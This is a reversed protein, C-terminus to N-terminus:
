LSVDVKKKGKKREKEEREVKERERERERWDDRLLVLEVEEEDEAGAGLGGHGVRYLGGEVRGVVLVARLPLRRLRQQLRCLFMGTHRARVRGLPRRQANDLLSSGCGGCGGRRGQDGCRAQGGARREPGRRM